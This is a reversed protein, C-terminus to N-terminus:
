RFCIIIKYGKVCACAFLIVSYLLPYVRACVYVCACARLKALYAFTKGIKQKIHVFTDFYSPEIM